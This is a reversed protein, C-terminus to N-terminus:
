LLMVGMAAPLAFPLLPIRKTRGDQGEAMAKLWLALCVPLACLLTGTFFLLNKWFGLYVGSVLFFWGDGAGIGENTIRSLFMLFIGVAAAAALGLVQIWVEAAEGRQGLLICLVLSCRCILGYAGFLWFTRIHITGKRADQWAAGALFILFGVRIGIYIYHWDM